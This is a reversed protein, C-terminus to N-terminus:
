GWGRITVYLVKAFLDASPILLCLCGIAALFICVSLAYRRKRDNKFYFELLMSRLMVEHKAKADAWHASNPSQESGIAQNLFDNFDAVYYKPYQTYTEGRSIDDNISIYERATFTELSNKVFEEPGRGRRLVFPRRIRFLINALGVFVLGFYMLKLRASSSLGFHLTNENALRDFAIHQAVTDNFLIAYGLLPVALSLKAVWGDLLWVYDSWRYNYKFTHFRRKLHDLM